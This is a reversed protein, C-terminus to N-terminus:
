ALVWYTAGLLCVLHIYQDLGIVVFGNHWDKRSFYFKSLRSTCWDTIWHSVFTFLLWMQAVFLTPLIWLMAVSMVLSYVAVHSTLAAYNSSKNEAQWRTQLVFDALYHAMM